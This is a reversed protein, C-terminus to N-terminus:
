TEQRTTVESTQVRRHGLAQHVRRVEPIDTEVRENRSAFRVLGSNEISETGAPPGDSLDLPREGVDPGGNGLSKVSEGLPNVDDVLPREFVAIPDAVRVEENTRLQEVAVLAVLDDVGLESSRGLCTGDQLRGEVGAQEAVQGSGRRTAHM